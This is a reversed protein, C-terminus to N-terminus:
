LLTHSLQLVRPLRFGSSYSHILCNFCGTYGSVVAIPTIYWFVGPFWLLLFLSFCVFNFTSLHCSFTLSVCLFMLKKSRTHRWSQDVMIKKVGMFWGTGGTAGWYGNGYNRGLVRIVIVYIATEWRKRDLRVEWCSVSIRISAHGPRRPNRGILQWICGFNVRLTVVMCSRISSSTKDEM